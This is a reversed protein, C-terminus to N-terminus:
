VDERVTILSPYSVGHRLRFYLWTIFFVIIGAPILLPIILGSCLMTMAGGIKYTSEMFFETPKFIYCLYFPFPAASCILALFDGGIIAAVAANFLLFTAILHAKKNGFVVATTNKQESYDGARDPLTSSISGACMLFFYPLASNFFVTEIVAKGGCIWGAGFAIVGYGLANSLFDCFPKGSFYFPKFSYLLGIILALLSLLSIMKYETFLPAIISIGSLLFAFFLADNRKVIGSALLPLGGNKKDVEIDAIQNFIYVAGVSLSFVFLLFCVPLSSSNWLNTIERLSDTKARYYGFFSFGWVPVLLIPRMLFLLDVLRLISKKM